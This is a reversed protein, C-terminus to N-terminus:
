LGLFFFRLLVCPKRTRWFDAVPLRTSERLLALFRRFNVTYDTWRMQPPFKLALVLAGGGPPTKMLSIGSPAFVKNKRSPSASYRHPPGSRRRLPYLPPFSRRFPIKQLPLHSCLKPLSDRRPPVKKHNNRGGRAAKGFLVEVRFQRM